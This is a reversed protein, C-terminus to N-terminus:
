LMVQAAVNLVQSPTIEKMCDFTGGCTPRRRCPSCPLASYIVKANPQGTDLYPCTSGFLAVTPRAKAIGLHTLGTDVGVVLASNEIITAAQLLSTAGVLNLVPAKGERMPGDVFSALLTRAHAQDSPGGLVVVPMANDSSTLQEILERWHTDFWHKQPRTTFPCIVCYPQHAVDGLQQIASTATAEHVGIHMRFADDPLGLHSAMGRYESSIMPHTNDREVSETHFLWSGERRGLGIRKPSGSLWALFGSKLIGHVDIVTDFQGQRLRRRFASVERWLTMYQRTRWLEKWQNKPWVIVEDLLDNESLLGAAMPEVLWSIHADPYRARLAPLLGSAFIVDGIASLRIVLIRKMFFEHQM